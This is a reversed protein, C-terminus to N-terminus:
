TRRRRWGEEWKAPDPQYVTVIICTKEAMNLAAVVHLVRGKIEGMLLVTPFPAADPYSEVVEGHTLIDRIDEKAIERQDMRFVAHFTYAIRECAIM